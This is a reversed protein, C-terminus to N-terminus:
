QKAVRISEICDNFGGHDCDGNVLQLNAVDATLELSRGQYNTNTYLTAKWGAAVRISSICNKWSYVTNSSNFDDTEGCPGKYTKLDPVAQDVLNSDGLYNAHEYIIIGASSDSPVTPLEKQCGYLPICVALVVIQVCRRESMLESRDHFIAVHPQGSRYEGREPRWLRVTGRAHEAM